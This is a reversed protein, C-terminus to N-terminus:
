VTNYVGEAIDGSIRAEPQRTGWKPGDIFKPVETQSRIAPWLGLLQRCAKAVCFVLVGDMWVSM